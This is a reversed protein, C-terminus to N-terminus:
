LAFYQLQLQHHLHLLLQKLKSSTKLLEPLLQIIMKFLFLMNDTKSIVHEKYIPKLDITISSKQMPGTLSMLGIM